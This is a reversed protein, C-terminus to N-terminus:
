AGQRRDVGSRRPATRKRRDVGYLQDGTALPQPVLEIFTIAYLDLTRKGYNDTNLSLAGVHAVTTCDPTDVDSVDFPGSHLGDALDAPLQILLNM